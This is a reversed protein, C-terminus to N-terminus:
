ALVAEACLQRVHEANASDRSGLVSARFSVLDERQPVILVQCQISTVFEFGDKSALREFSYALELPATRILMIERVVEAPVEAGAAFLHPGPDGRWVLVACGHPTSIRRRLLGFLDDARALRAVMSTNRAFQEPDFASM